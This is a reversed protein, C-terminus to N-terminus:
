KEQDPPTSIDNNMYVQGVTFKKLTPVSPSTLSSSPLSPLNRRRLLLDKSITPLVSPFWRVTNFAICLHLSFFLFSRFIRYFKAFGNHSSFHRKVTERIHRKHQTHKLIKNPYNTNHSNLSLKHVKQTASYAYLPFPTSLGGSLVEPRTMRKLRRAMKRNNHRNVKRQVRAQTSRTYVRKNNFVNQSDTFLCGEAAVSAAVGTGRARSRFPPVEHSTVSCSINTKRWIQSLVLALKSRFRKVTMLAFM